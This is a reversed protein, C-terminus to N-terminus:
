KKANMQSLTEEMETVIKPDLWKGGNGHYQAQGEQLMKLGKERQGLHIFTLGCYVNYRVSGKDSVKDDHRALWECREAAAEYNGNEVDAMTRAVQGNTSSCGATLGALALMSALKRM